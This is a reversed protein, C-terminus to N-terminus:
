FFSQFYYNWQCNSVVIAVTHQAFKIYFQFLWWYFMLKTFTYSGHSLFVNQIFDKSSFYLIQWSYGLDSWILKVTKNIAKKRKMWSNWRCYKPDGLAQERVKKIAKSLKNLTEEAYESAFYGYSNSYCSILLGFMLWPLLDLYCGLFFLRFLPRDVSSAISLIVAM